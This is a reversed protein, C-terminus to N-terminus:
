AYRADSHCRRNLSPQGVHLGNVAVVPRPKAPNGKGSRLGTSAVPPLGAIWYCPKWLLGTALAIAAIRRLVDTLCGAIATEYM